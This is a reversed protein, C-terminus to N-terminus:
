NFENCDSLRSYNNDGTTANSSWVCTYDAHGTATLYLLDEYFYIKKMVVGDYNSRRARRMRM